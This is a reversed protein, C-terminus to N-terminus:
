RVDVSLKVVDLLRLTSQLTVLLSVLRSDHCQRPWKMHGEFGLSTALLDRVIRRLDAPRHAPYLRQDEIPPGLPETRRSPTNM